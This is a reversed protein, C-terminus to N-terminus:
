HAKKHGSLVPINSNLPEIQLAIEGKKKKSGKIQFEMTFKNAEIDPITKVTIIRLPDFARLEIKGVIGNWISQTQEGYSHAQDGINHIMDNNVM